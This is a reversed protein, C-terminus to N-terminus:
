FIRLVCPPQNKNEKRVDLDVAIFDSHTGFRELALLGDM